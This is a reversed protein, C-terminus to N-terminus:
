GTRRIFTGVGPRGVTLGEAKLINLARQATGPAVSFMDALENVSPLRDTYEGSKIAQRLQEAIQEKAPVPITVDITTEM